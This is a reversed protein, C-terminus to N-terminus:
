RNALEYSYQRLLRPERTSSTKGLVNSFATAIEPVTMEVSAAEIARNAFDASREFVEVVMAGYEDESLQQLKRDPSLPKSLTGNEVM